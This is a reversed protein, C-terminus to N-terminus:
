TQKNFGCNSLKSRFSSFLDSLVRKDLDDIIGSYLLIFPSFVFYIIVLISEYDVFWLWSVWFVLIFVMIKIFDKVTKRSFHYESRLIVFSFLIFSFIRASLTAYSAGVYSFAPILVFNMVVNLILVFIMVSLIVRQRDISKLLNTYTVNLFIFVQAWVLVYLCETSNLYETGFVYCIIEEGFFTLFVVLSMGAILLYKFSREFVMKLSEKSSIFLKSTVPYIASVFMLPIFNLTFVIKYAATYIGVASDGVMFSLMVQDVQNIIVIFIYSAWFPAGETLLFIWLGRDFEFKPITFKKLLIIATYLFLISNGLIYLLAFAIIGMDSSAAIFAGLLMVSNKLVKGIALYQMKEFAQFIANSLMTFADLLLAFGIVYVVLKTKPPYGLLNISLVMLGFLLAVLFVKMTLVNGLYKGVIKKDRAVERILLEYFGIDAFLVFLGNFALAFSIIGFGEAHLYRAAYITFGLTLLKGILEGSVLFVMNKGIRTITTM